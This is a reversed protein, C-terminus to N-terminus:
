MNINSSERKAKKEELEAFLLDFQRMRLTYERDQQEKAQEDKKHEYEWKEKRYLQDEEAKALFLKAMDENKSRDEQLINILAAGINSKSSCSKKNSYVVVKQSTEQNTEQDLDIESLSHSREKRSKM